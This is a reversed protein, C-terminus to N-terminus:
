NLLSIDDICFDLYSGLKLIRSTFKLDGASIKKFTLKSLRM